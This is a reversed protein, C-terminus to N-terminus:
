SLGSLFRTAAAVAKSSVEAGTLLVAFALDGQYGVFWGHSHVGDGFQATGTKGRLDPFGALAPTSRVMEQMMARVGDLVQPSVPTVTSNAKTTQGTLLSPTPMKGTAVTSVVLAMGFPSAVVKGQGFGDEAREVIGTAQPVSGTVTTAGPMEFDVGLGLNKAADSLESPGMQSALQAFTTNCSVAFATSLPITGKDFKGSNPIERGDITITGPCGVPSAGNVKGESLAATATVIKFTSGPPYRGMLAVPGQQDALANQAVALVQGTSPQMAVIMSPTPETNVAAQAANQVGVSLTTHAAEAPEPAKAYLEEVEAGTTDTTIVRWGAKGTLDAEVVKRIGPLVASGFAKDNPLLRPASTFRVGPLDYIAPKVADYDSQRLAVVQYPQGAPAKNVGDLISQQTITNDIGSLNTALAGAVANVDGAKDKELLVSVVRTPSLVLNGDRDLVPALEPQQGQVAIAQQQALKPHIVTPAWHVLWTGDQDRLELHSEYSWTRNGGLDWDLEYSADATAAGDDQGVEKVKVRVSKPELAKWVETLQKRASDASDTQRAAGGLDHKAFANLFADVTDGPAAESSCAVLPVM